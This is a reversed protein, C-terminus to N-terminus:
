GSLHRGESGITGKFDSGLINEIIYSSRTWIRYCVADGAVFIWSYLTKGAMNHSTEGGNIVAKNRISDAIELYIPRLIMSIKKLYGNDSYVIAFM